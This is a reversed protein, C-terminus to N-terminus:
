VVIELGVLSKECHVTEELVLPKGWAPCPGSTRHLGGPRNYLMNTITELILNDEMYFQVCYYSNFSDQRPLWRFVMKVSWSFHTGTIKEHEIFNSLGTRINETQVSNRHIRLLLRHARSQGYYM